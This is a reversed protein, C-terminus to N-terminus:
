ININHNPKIKIFIITNKPRALPELYMYDIPSACMNTSAEAVYLVAIITVPRAIM